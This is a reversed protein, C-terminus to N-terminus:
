LVIGILKTVLDELPILTLVLPMGPLITLFVLQVITDRGFPIPKMERIVQFSNGLDALSQIDGSGVLPENGSAGGRIWKKDFENVYNSALIGYEHLGTRKAQMLRM